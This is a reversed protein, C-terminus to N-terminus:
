ARVFPSDCALCVADLRAVGVWVNTCGCSWKKLTSRGGPSPKPGAGPTRAGAAGPPPVGHRRLLDLFTGGPDYTQRGRYDIVLGFQRLRDRYAKNHHNHPSPAGYLAQEFHGQEHLLTGVLEGLDLAALDLPGGRPMPPVCVAIEGRVGFENHGPRFYGLCSRRRSQELRLATRPLAMGTWGVLVDWWRDLFRYVERLVWGDEARQHSTLVPYVPKAVDALKVKFDSAAKKEAAAPAAGDAVPQRDPAVWTIRGDPSDFSNVRRNREDNTGV